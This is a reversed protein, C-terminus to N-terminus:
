PGVWSARTGCLPTALTQSLLPSGYKGYSTVIPLYNDLFSSGGMFGFNTGGHFMYFNLSFKFNLMEKVDKRLVTCPGSFFSILFLNFLGKHSKSIACTLCTHMKTKTHGARHEWLVLKETASRFDHCWSCKDALWM